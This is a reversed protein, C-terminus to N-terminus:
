RFSLLLEFDQQQLQEELLLTVKQRLTTQRRKTWGPLQQQFFDRYAPFIVHAGPNEIRPWTQRIHERMRQLLLLIERCIEPLQPLLCEEPQWDQSVPRLAQLHMELRATPFIDSLPLLRLVNRKILLQSTESALHTWADASIFETGAPRRPKKGAPANGPSRRFHLIHVALERMFAESACVFGLKKLATLSERSLDQLQNEALPLTRALMATLKAHEWPQMEGPVLSQESDTLQGFAVAVEGYGTAVLVNALLTQLADSDLSEGAANGSRIKEELMLAFHEPLWQDSIGNSRFAQALKERLEDLDFSRMSGDRDQVLLNTSYIKIM